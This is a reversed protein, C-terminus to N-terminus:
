LRKNFNLPVRQVSSMEYLWDGVEKETIDLPDEADSKSNAFLFLLLRSLRVYLSQLSVMVFLVVTTDKGYFFVIAPLERIVTPQNMGKLTQVVDPSSRLDVIAPTVEPIKEVGAMFYKKM